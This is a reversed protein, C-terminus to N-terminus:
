KEEKNESIQAAAGDCLMAFHDKATETAKELEMGMGDMYAQISGKIFEEVQEETIM